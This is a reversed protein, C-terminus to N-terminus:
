HFPQLKRSRILLKNYIDVHHCYQCATSWLDCYSAYINVFLYTAHSCIIIKVVELTEGYSKWNKSLYTLTSSNRYKNHPAWLYYVASYRIATRTWNFIYSAQLLPARSCCPKYSSWNLVVLPSWPMAISTEWQENLRLVLFHVLDSSQLPLNWQLRLSKDLIVM